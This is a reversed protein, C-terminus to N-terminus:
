YLLLFLFLQNVACLLFYLLSKFLDTDHSKRGWNTAWFVWCHLVSLRVGLKRVTNLNLKWKSKCIKINFFNGNTKEFEVIVGFVVVCVCHGRIDERTTGNSGNMLSEALNKLVWLLPRFYRSMTGKFPYMKTLKANSSCYLYVPVIRKLGIQERNSGCWIYSDQLARYLSSPNM